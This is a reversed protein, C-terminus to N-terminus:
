EEEPLVPIASCRCQYDGGPHERRGPAVEPPNDWAFIQGNLAEHSARVREDGSTSWRYRTIGLDRNRAEVLKGNLKGIQDRAILDARSRSVGLREEVMARMERVLAGKEHAELIKGTLDEVTDIALGKILGVGERVFSTMQQAVRPSTEAVKVGLSQGLKRLNARRTQAGVSETLRRLYEPTLREGVRARVSELARKPDDVIPLDGPSIVEAPTGSRVIEKQRALAAAETAFYETKFAGGAVRVAWLDSDHHADLGLARM